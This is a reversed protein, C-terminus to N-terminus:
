VENLCMNSITYVIKYNPWYEPIYDPDRRRPRSVTELGTKSIDRDRRTEDRRTFKTPVDRRPRMDSIFDFTETESMFTENVTFM